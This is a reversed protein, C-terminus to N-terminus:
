VLHKSYFVANGLIPPKFSPLPSDGMMYGMLKISRWNVWFLFCTSGFEQLMVYSWEQLECIEVIYILFFTCM